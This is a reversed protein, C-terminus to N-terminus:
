HGARFTSRFREDLLAVSRGEGELSLGSRPHNQVVLAFILVM